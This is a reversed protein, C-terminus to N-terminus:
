AGVERLTAIGDWGEDEFFDDVDVHVKLDTGCDPCTRRVGDMVPFKGRWAPFECVPCLLEDREEDSM